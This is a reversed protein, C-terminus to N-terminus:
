ALTRRFFFAISATKGGTAYTVAHSARDVSLVRIEPHYNDPYASPDDYWAKIMSYPILYFCNADGCIWVEYDARLTNPNINFRFRPGKRRGASCYRVHLVAQDIKVM